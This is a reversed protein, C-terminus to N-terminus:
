SMVLVAARDQRSSGGAGGGKGWKVCSLPVEAELVEDKNTAFFFEFHAKM